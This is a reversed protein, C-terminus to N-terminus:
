MKSTQSIMSLFRYFFTTIRYIWFFHLYLSLDLPFTDEQNRTEIDSQVPERNVSRNQPQNEYNEVGIIQMTTPDVM